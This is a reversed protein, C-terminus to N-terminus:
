QSFCARPVRPFLWETHPCPFVYNGSQDLHVILNHGLTRKRMPFGQKGDHSQQQNTVTDHGVRRSGMSQLGGPEGTWPIEWPPMSSRTAMEGGTARGSGPTSDVDGTDGANAPLNKVM